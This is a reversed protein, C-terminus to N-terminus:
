KAKEMAILWRQVHLVAREELQMLVEEESTRNERCEIALSLSDYGFAHCLEVHLQDHRRNMEEVTCGLWAATVKQQLEFPLDPHYPPEGNETEALMWVAAREFEPTIM